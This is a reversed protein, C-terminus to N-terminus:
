KFLSLLLRGFLTRSLVVQTGGGATSVSTGCISTTLVSEICNAVKNLKLTKTQRLRRLHQSPKVVTEHYSLVHSAYCGLFLCLYRMHLHMLCSWWLNNKYAWISYKWEKLKLKFNNGARDKLAFLLTVWLTDSLRKDVCSDTLIMYIWVIVNDNCSCKKRKLKCQIFDRPSCSM